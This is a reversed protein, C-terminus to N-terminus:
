GIGNERWRVSRATFMSLSVCTDTTRLLAPEHTLSEGTPRRRAARVAAALAQRQPPRETPARVRADPCRAGPRGDFCVVVPDAALWRDDEARPRYYRLAIAGRAALSCFGTLLLSTHILDHDPGVFLVIRPTMAGKM